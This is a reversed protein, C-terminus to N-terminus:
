RNAPKKSAELLQTVLVDKIGLEKARNLRHTAKKIEKQKLLDIAVFVQIRGLIRRTDFHNPIKEISVNLLKEAASWNQTTLALEAIANNKNAQVHANLETLTEQFNDNPIEVRLPKINGLINSMISRVNAGRAEILVRPTSFEIHQHDLTILSADGVYKKVMESQLACQGILLYPNDYGVSGLTKAGSNEIRNKIQGTNLRIMSSAAAIALVPKQGFTDSIWLQVFPFVTTFSKLISKLDNESVQQLPIYQVMIGDKALHNKCAQVHELAYMASTGASSMQFMDGVLVKYKVASTKVYSRGDDIIINLRPDSIIEQNEQKFQLAAELQSPVIEICDIHKVKKHEAIASLTIGTALGIVLVSDPREHLLMPLHGQRRQVLMAHEDTGGSQYVGNVKLIKVNERGRVISQYVGVNASVGEKYFLQKYGQPVYSELLKGSVGYGIFVTIILASVVGYKWKQRSRVVNSEKIFFIGLMLNITALVVLSKSLGLFPILLFGACFSGLIGGVTNMSYIKGVADGIDKSKGRYWQIMVPFLSGMLVSPVFVLAGTKLGMAALYSFWNGDVVSDLFFASESLKLSCFISVALSIQILAFWLPPSKMKTTFWGTIISGLAIGLLYLILILSFTYTSSPLNQLLSRTWLVEYAIACVGSITYAVLCQKSASNSTQLFKIEPQVSDPGKLKGYLYATLGIGISLCAGIVATMSLGYKEILFFGTLAAGTVAGLTNAGYLKGIKSGKNTMTTRIHRSLVPLTGGMLTTPIILVGFSLLFKIILSLISNSGTLFPVLTLYIHDILGILFFSILCYIGIVLEIGAYIFIPKIKTEWKGLLYSGLAMGSFFSSLITSISYISSGFLFQLQKAWVIEYLLSVGGSLFFLFIILDDKKLFKNSKM